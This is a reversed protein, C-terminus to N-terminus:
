RGQWWGAWGHVSPRSVCINPVQLRQRPGSAFPLQHPIPGAQDSASWRLWQWLAMRNSGTSACSVPLNPPQGVVTETGQSHLENCAELGSSADVVEIGTLQGAEFANPMLITSVRPLQQRYIPVLEKPLYLQGDDGM